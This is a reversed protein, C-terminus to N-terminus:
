KLTASNTAKSNCVNPFSDSWSSCAFALLLSNEELIHMVNRQFLPLHHLRTEAQACMAMNDTGRARPPLPPPKQHSGNLHRAGQGPADATAGEAPASAVCRQFCADYAAGRAGETLHPQRSALEDSERACKAM